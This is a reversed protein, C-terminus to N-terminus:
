SRETQVRPLNATLHQSIIIQIGQAFDSIHEVHFM